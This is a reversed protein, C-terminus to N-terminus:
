ESGGEGDIRNNSKRGRAHRAPSNRGQMIEGSCVAAARHFNGAGGRGDGDPVKSSNPGVGGDGNDNDRRTHTAIYCSATSCAPLNSEGPTPTRTEGYEM